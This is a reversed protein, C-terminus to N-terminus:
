RPRRPTSSRWSRRRLVAPDSISATCCAPTASTWPATRDEGPRSPPNGINTFAGTMPDYTGFRSATPTGYFVGAASIALGAGTASTLGTNGIVTAQGTATNIAYLQPGGVTGVGYLNGAADFALDGMTADRTGPNGPNFAGIVTVLATAPDITVLLSASEEPNNATAGYLVGTFPHFALGTIPDNEGLSDNLPGVDVIAAGTNPDLIYLEGPAGAATAGYLTAAQAPAAALLALVAALFPRLRRCEPRM